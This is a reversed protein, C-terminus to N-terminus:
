EEGLGALLNVSLAVFKGENLIAFRERGVEEGATLFLHQEDQEGDQCFIQLGVDDEHVLGLRAKMELPLLFEDSKNAFKIGIRLEHQRGM